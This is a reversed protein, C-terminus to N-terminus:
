IANKIIGNKEETSGNIGRFGEKVGTWDNEVM